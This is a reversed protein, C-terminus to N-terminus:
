KKGTHWTRFRVQKTAYGFVQALAKTETICVNDSHHM